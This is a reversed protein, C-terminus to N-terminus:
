RCINDQEQPEGVFESSIKHILFYQINDLEMQKYEKELLLEKVRGM